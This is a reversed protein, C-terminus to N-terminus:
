DEGLSDSRWVRPFLLAAALVALLAIVVAVGLRAETTALAELYVRADTVFQM